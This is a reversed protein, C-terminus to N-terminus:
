EVTEVFERPTGIRIRPFKLEADEFDRVNGTVIWNAGGAVALEMVHNDAEDRLNPRWLFYIPVWRCVSAFADLLREREEPSSDSREFVDARSM